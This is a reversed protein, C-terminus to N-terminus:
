QQFRHNNHINENKLWNLTEKVGEIRSYPLEPAIAYIKSVNRTNSTTMNKLRYSTMPFKINLTKKLIDGILALMKIFIYPVKFIKIDVEKAIENAWDEINYPPQDGIYFIQNQVKNKDTFLLKEIQYVSNGVYGYTKTASKNGIHFYKKSLLIDFFNRYPERFWPGWISTPRIIVWEFPINADNKIILEGLKKSEGYLNVTYYDDDNVPMRGKCVLQSSTFIVRKLNKCKRLTNIINQVGITNANYDDLTKGDLDTRAALHVVYDPNFNLIQEELVAANTIDINKWYKNHKSNQPSNFDINLVDFNKHAFHELLNTGIFGSAGTILIRKM